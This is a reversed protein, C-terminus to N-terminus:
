DLGGALALDGLAPQVPGQGPPDGKKLTIVSTSGSDSIPEAKALLLDMKPSAPMPGTLLPPVELLKEFFGGRYGGAILVKGRLGGVCM